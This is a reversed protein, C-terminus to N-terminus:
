NVLITSLKAFSPDFQKTKEATLLYLDSLIMVYFFKLYLTKEPRYKRFNTYKEHLTILEKM